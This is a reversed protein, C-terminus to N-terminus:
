SSYYSHARASETVHDEGQIGKRSLLDLMRGTSSHNAVPGATHHSARVLQAIEDPLRQVLFFIILM